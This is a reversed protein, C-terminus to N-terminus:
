SVSWKTVKDARDIWGLIRYKRLFVEVAPRYRDIAMRSFFYVPFVLSGGLLLSGLVVTNNFHTWPVVPLGYLFTWAPELATWTLLGLGIQHSLPDLLMGVWAFIATGAAAAGLNVRTAVVVTSLILALLNDKPIVGILMGLAFGHALQSSSTSDTLLKALLRLPKLFAHFM